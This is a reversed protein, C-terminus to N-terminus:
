GEKNPKKDKTNWKHEEVAELKGKTWQKSVQRVTTSSLWGILVLVGFGVACIIGIEALTM